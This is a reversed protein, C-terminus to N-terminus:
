DFLQAASLEPAAADKGSVIPVGSLPWDVGLSADNWRVSRDHEGFWYETTKYLVDAVDSLALFAHGFGPPIWMQRRNEASLEVGVWRRFTGSSRRLDVAVDFIRGQAVRVLKGQPRVLQYHIGRLVNRVSRSENDQVFSAAVGTVEQFTRANYSEFFHGRADSHVAPELVLVGPLPTPQVKM